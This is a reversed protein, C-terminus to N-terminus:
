PILINSFYSAGVLLLLPLGGSVFCFVGICDASGKLHWPYLLDNNGNQWRSVFCVAIYELSGVISERAPPTKFHFQKCCPMGFEWTEQMFVRSFSIAVWELVRAQFIGRVFSRPLSYDMPDCLTPCSQTVESESVDRSFSDLSKGEQANKDQKKM